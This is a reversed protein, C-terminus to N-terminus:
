EIILKSSKEKGSETIIKIFYLGKKWNSCNVVSPSNKASLSKVSEGLANFIEIM